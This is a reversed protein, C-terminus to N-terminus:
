DRSVESQASLLYQSKLQNIFSRIDQDVTIVATGTETALERIIDDVPRGQRLREWVYGGTSNLTLMIDRDIDLIVAGDNDVVSRVNPAIHPM